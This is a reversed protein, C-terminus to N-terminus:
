DRFRAHSAHFRRLRLVRKMMAPSSGAMWASGDLVLGANRGAVAFAQLLLAKQRQQVSVVM